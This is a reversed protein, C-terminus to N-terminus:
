RNCVMAQQTIDGESSDTSQLKQQANSVHNQELKKMTSNPYILKALTPKTMQKTM